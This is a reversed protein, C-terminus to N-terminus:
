IFSIALAFCLISRKFVVCLQVIYTFTEGLYPLLVVFNHFRLESFELELCRGYKCNGFRFMCLSSM